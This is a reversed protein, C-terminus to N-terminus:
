VMNGMKKMLFSSDIIPTLRNDFNENVIIDEYEFPLIFEGNSMKALSCKNNRWVIAIEESITREWNEDYHHSDTPEIFDYIIPLIVNGSLDIISYKWTRKVILYKLYSFEDTPRCEWSFVLTVEDAEISLNEKGFIHCIGKKRYVM